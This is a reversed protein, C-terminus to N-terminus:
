AIMNAKTPLVVNFCAMPQGLCSLNNAHPPYTKVTKPLIEKNHAPRVTFSLLSLNGQQYRVVWAAFTQPQDLSQRLVISPINFHDDSTKRNSVFAAQSCLM